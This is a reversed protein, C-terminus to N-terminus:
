NLRLRQRISVSTKLGDGGVTVEFVGSDMLGGRQHHQGHDPKKGIGQGQDEVVALDAAMSAPFALGKVLAGLSDGIPEEGRGGVGTSKGGVCTAIHGVLAGRRLHAFTPAVTNGEVASDARYAGETLRKRSGLGTVVGAPEEGDRFKNWILPRADLRM